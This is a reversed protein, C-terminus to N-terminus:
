IISNKIVNVTSSIIPFPVKAELVVMGKWVSEMVTFTIRVTTMHKLIEPNSNIKISTIEIIEVIM